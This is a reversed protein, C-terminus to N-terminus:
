IGMGFPHYAMILFGSKEEETKEDRGCKRGREM